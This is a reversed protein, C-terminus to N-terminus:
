SNSGFYFPQLKQFMQLEKKASHNKTEKQWSASNNLPALGVTCLFQTYSM